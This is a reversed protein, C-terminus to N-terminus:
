AERSSPSLGQYLAHHHLSQPCGSAEAPHNRKSMKSVTESHLELRAKFRLEEQRLRGLAPIVPTAVM